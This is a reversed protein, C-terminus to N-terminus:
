FEVHFAPNIDRNSMLSKFETEQYLVTNEEKFCYLAIHRSHIAHQVACRQPTCNRETSYLWHMLSSYPSCNFIMNIIKKDCLLVM